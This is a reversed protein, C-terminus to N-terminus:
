IEDACDYCLIIDCLDCEYGPSNTIYEGCFLCQTCLNQKFYLPHNHISYNHLDMSILPENIKVPNLKEKKEHFFCSKCVDFDCPKCLFSCTNIYSSKCINCIWNQRYTLKLTHNHFTNKKDDYLIKSGCDLCLVIKCNCEYGPSNTIEQLCFNCKKNAYEYYSFSHEHNSEIEDDDKNELDDENFSDKNNQFLSQKNYEEDDESDQGEKNDEYENDEIDDDEEDGYGIGNPIRNKNLEYFEEIPEKILRGANKQKM